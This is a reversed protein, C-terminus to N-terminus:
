IGEGYNRLASGKEYKEWLVRKKYFVSVGASHKREGRFNIM